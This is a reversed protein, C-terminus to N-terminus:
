AQGAAPEHGTEVRLGHGAGCGAPMLTAVVIGVSIGVSLSPRSRVSVHARRVLFGSGGGGAILTGATVAGLAAVVPGAICAVGRPDRSRWPADPHDRAGAVFTSPM